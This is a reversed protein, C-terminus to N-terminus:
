RISHWYPKNLLTVATMKTQYMVNVAVAQINYQKILSETLECLAVYQRAGLVLNAGRSAFEIALAKGIGSSAGTIIVVKDNLKM